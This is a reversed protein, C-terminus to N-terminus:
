LAFVMIVCLVVWAIFARQVLQQDDESVKDVAARGCESLVVGSAMPVNLACKLWCNFGTTFNGMLAYVFGAIRAPLWAAVWHIKAVVARLGAHEESAGVSSHVLMVVLWYFVGGLLGLSLGFVGTWIAGLLASWFLIGFSTEHVAIFPDGTSDGAETNGLLYFLVLTCFLLSGIIGFLSHFILEIVLLVLCIALYILGCQAYVNKLGYQDLLGVMKGLLVDFWQYSRLGQLFAGGPIVQVYRDLLVALIITMAMEIAM